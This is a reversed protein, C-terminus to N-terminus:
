YIVKLFLIDNFIKALLPINLQKAEGSYIIDNTNKDYILKNSGLM